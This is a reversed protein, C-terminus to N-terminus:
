REEAKRADVERWAPTLASARHAPSLEQLVERWRIRIHIERAM